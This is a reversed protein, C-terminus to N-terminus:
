CFNSRCDRCEKPDKPFDLCVSCLVDDVGSQGEVADKTSLSLEGVSFEFHDIVTM